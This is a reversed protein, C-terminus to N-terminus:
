ESDLFTAIDPLHKEWHGSPLRVLWPDTPRTLDIPEEPLDDEDIDLLDIADIDDDFALSLRRPQPELILAPNKVRGKKVLEFLCPYHDQEYPKKFDSFWKNPVGERRDLLVVDSFHICARHWLELKPQAHLLQCHVVTIIRALSEGSIQLWEGFAELYDLPNGRGSAIIFIAEADAPAQIHRLEEYALVRNSARAELQETATSDSESAHQAVVVVEDDAFGGEILDRVVGRRGAGEAGLIFYVEAMRLM